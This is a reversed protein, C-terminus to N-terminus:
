HVSVSQSLVPTDAPPQVSGDAAITEAAFWGLMSQHFQRIRDASAIGLDGFSHATKAVRESSFVLDGNIRIGSALDAATPVLFANILIFSRHYTIAPKRPVRVVAALVPIELWPDIPRWPSKGRALVSAMTSLNFLKLSDVRVRTTVKHDSVRSALDDSQATVSNLNSATAATLLEAGNENSEVSIDMEAGSAGSLSYPTATLILGKGIRASVPTRTLTQIAALAGVAENTTMNHTLFGSLSPPVPTGSSTTSGTGISKIAAAFDGLTAPPTADFYNQTTTQVNAQNGGVVKVSVIGSAAYAIQSNRKQLLESEEIEGKIQTQFIELDSTFADVIPSLQADLNAAAQAESFPEFDNRYETMMKYQFLFDAIAARLRGLASTSPVTGQTPTDPPAFFQNQLLDRTCELQLTLEPLKATVFAIYASQDRDQCGGTGQFSQIDSITTQTTTEMIDILNKVEARPKQSAALAVLMYVLNPPLPSFLGGYGLAYGSLNGAPLALTCCVKEQGKVPVPVSPQATLYDSFPHYLYTQDALRSVLYQWGRQTSTAMVDNYKKAVKDILPGTKAMTSESTTSVQISWADLSVQPRPQDIRAVMRRADELPDRKEGGAKVPPITESLVVTDPVIAAANVEPFAAHVIAAATTPDHDYFLRQAYSETNPSPATLPEALASVYKEIQKELADQEAQDLRPDIEFALRTSGIPSINWIGPLQKALANAIDCNKGTGLPFSSMYFVPQPVALAAVVSDIKAKLGPIDRPTSPFRPDPTQDLLFLLSTNGLPIINTVGPIANSLKSAVDVVNGSGVPLNKPYIEVALPSKLQALGDVWGKIQKELNTADQPKDGAKLPSVDLVFMLEKNSLAAISVIQPVNGKLATVIDSANNGATLTYHWIEVNTPGNPKPAQPSTATVPGTTALSISVM